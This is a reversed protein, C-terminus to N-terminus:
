DARINRSIAEVSKKKFFKRKKHDVMKGCKLRGVVIGWFHIDLKM